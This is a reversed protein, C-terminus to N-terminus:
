MRLMNLIKDIFMVIFTIVAVTIIVPAVQVILNLIGPMILIVEQILATINTFDIAASAFGILGGASALLMVARVKWPSITKHEMGTDSMIQEKPPESIYVYREDGVHFFILTIYILYAHKIKNELDIQKTKKHTNGKSQKTYDVPFAPKHSHDPIRM